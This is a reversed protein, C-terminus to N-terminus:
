PGFTMTQAVMAQLLDNYAAQATPGLPAAILNLSEGPDSVLDYMQVVLSPLDVILKFRRGRIACKYVGPGIAFGTPTFFEAFAHKRITQLGPQSLYPVVSTSDLGLHKAKEPGVPDGALELITTFVDTTNVLADCVGGAAQVSPGHIILPVHVGGEYLTGKAKDFTGPPGIVHNPSGNDGLFVVDATKGLTEVEDLLRGIEHDMAEIMAKFLPRQNGPTATSVDSTYLGRPPKHFPSHASHFSIQVFWPEPATAIFELARDVTHVTVYGVRNVLAGNEIQDWRFYTDTPPNLNFRTWVAHDFGHENPALDGAAETSLHWKGFFGNTYPTPAQHLLEAVTIESPQLTWGVTVLTGIGTHMGYRGTLLTARTPSCFPNSWCNRFVVGEAALADITPTNPLDLGTGFPAFEHVGVDDAVILLVNGSGQASALSIPLLFAALCAVRRM